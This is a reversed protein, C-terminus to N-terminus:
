AARVFGADSTNNLVHRDAVEASGTPLSSFTLGIGVISLVLLVGLPPPM